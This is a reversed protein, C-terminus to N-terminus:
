RDDTWLGLAVGAAVIADVQDQTAAGTISQAGGLVTITESKDVALAGSAYSLGAGALTAFPHSVLNGGARAPFSDASIALDGPDATSGTANAKITNAAMDASKANSVANNAITTANSNASATVDGTLAARQVQIQNAVSTSVANSTSSTLVREASMNSSASYTVIPEASTTASAGAAKAAFGTLAGTNAMSLQQYSPIEGPGNSCLADGETGPPITQWVSVGRALLNGTAVVASLGGAATGDNGGTGHDIVGGAATSDSADLKVWFQPQPATPLSNLDPPTGGNYVELVQSATLAAGFLAVHRIEGTFPLTNTAARVGIELAQTSLTTSGVPGNGTASSRKSTAVGDIYFTVGASTSTGDHVAVVHVLGGVPVSSDVTQANLFNNGSPAVSFLLLYLRGPAEIGCEWGRFTPSPDMKGVIVQQAAVSPTSIWASVTFPDTREFDNVDAFEVRDDIGDFLWSVGGGGIWDLEQHVTIASAPASADGDNGFVRQPPLDPLSGGGGGGGAGSGEESVGVQVFWGGLGDATADYTGPRDNIVFAEGNVTGQVAVIRVDNSNRFALTIRAGRLAPTSEPLTITVLSGSRPEVNVFEGAKASYDSTVIGARGAKRRLRAQEDKLAEIEAILVRAADRPLGPLHIRDRGM